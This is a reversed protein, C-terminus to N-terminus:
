SMVALRTSVADGARNALQARREPGREVADRAIEEAAIWEHDGRAELEGREGHDEGPATTRRGTERQM